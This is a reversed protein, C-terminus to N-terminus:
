RALWDQPVEDGLALAVSREVDRGLSVVLLWLISEEGNRSGERAFTISDALMAVMHRERCEREETSEKLRTRLTDIEIRLDKERSM